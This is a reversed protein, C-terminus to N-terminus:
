RAMASAVKAVAEGVRDVQDDTLDHHVPLCLVERALRECVPLSPAHPMTARIAPQDHIARPYHIGNGVGEAELAKAFTERDCRLRELDLQITYQHYVHEGGPTPRPPTVAPVEELRATLREANEQRRATRAPLKDLQRLGIAAFVDNFRYNYGISEHYYRKGPTMGHDRLLHLRRLLADDNCTILGGEGTTMNKTPYFSYTVVEGYAGIGQNRYRALHSQAADYIVILNHRRAVAQVADIAAPNGYLHTATIARTRPTIRAEADAADLNFTSPEVECLIPKAGRAILMSVTAIFTFAPCLVEDGPELLAEYVMQLAVTGNTCAVGFRADSMAALRSEFEASTAGQRLKGSRMVEVAAEIEDEALRASVFPILRESM